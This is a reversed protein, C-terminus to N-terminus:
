FQFRLAFELIRPDRASTVQGSDGSGFGTSIGSFNTHNFANFFESRFQITKGEAIDFDKYLAMDFGIYGPGTVSGPAASEFYGALPASFAATNFWQQVTKPGQM